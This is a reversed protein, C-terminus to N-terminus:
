SRFRRRIGAFQLLLAAAQSPTMGDAEAPGLDCTITVIAWLDKRDDLERVQEVVAEAEVRVRGANREFWRDQVFSFARTQWWRREGDSRAGRRVRLHIPSGLGTAVKPVDTSLVDSLRAVLRPWDWVRRDMVEEPRRIASGELGKEVSVGLSLVPHEKSIAAVFQAEAYDTRGERWWFTHKFQPGVPYNAIQLGDSPLGLAECLGAKISLTTTNHQDQGAFDFHGKLLWAASIPASM